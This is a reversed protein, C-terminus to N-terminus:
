IESTINHIMELTIYHNFMPFGVHKKYRSSAQLDLFNNLSEDSSMAYSREMRDRVFRMRNPMDRSEPVSPQLSMSRRQKGRCHRNPM